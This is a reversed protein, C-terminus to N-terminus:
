TAARRVRLALWVLPIQLPLRGYAILRQALPRDSWDSAMQINAPFVVVFLVAALAAGVRRSRPVAVTVAVALEAAGSLSTWTRPTGPLAHPVIKDFGKPIAFHAAGAVGLIAILVRTRTNMRAAYLRTAGSSIRAAM